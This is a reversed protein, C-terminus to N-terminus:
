ESEITYSKEVREKEKQSFLVSKSSGEHFNIIILYDCGM